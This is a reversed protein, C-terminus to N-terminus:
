CYALRGPSLGNNSPIITLKSVWILTAQGWNRLIERFFNWYVIPWETPKVGIWHWAWIIMGAEYRSIGSNDIDTDCSMMWDPNERREFSKMRFYRKQMITRLEDGGGVEVGVGVWVGCGVGQVFHGGIKCVVIEIEYWGCMLRNTHRKKYLSDRKM